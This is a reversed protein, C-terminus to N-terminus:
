YRLVVADVKNEEVDDALLYTRKRGFEEYMEVQDRYHPGTSGDRAVFGSQGPPTVEWGIPMGDKFVTMNNETGRNMAPTLSFAENALAQPIKLFNTDWCHVAQMPRLIPTSWLAGNTM